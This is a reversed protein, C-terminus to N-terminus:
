PKIIMIIKIIVGVLLVILYIGFIESIPLNGFLVNFSGLYGRITPIAQGFSQGSVSASAVNFKGSFGFLWSSVFDIFPKTSSVLGNIYVSDTACNGNETCFAIWDTSTDIFVPPSFSLCNGNESPFQPLQWYCDRNECDTKNDCFKCAYDSGCNPESYLLNRINDIIVRVCNDNTGGYCNVGSDPELGINKIPVPYDCGELWTTWENNELKQRCRRLDDYQWYITYWKGNEIFGLDNNGLRTIVSAKYSTSSYFPSITFSEESQGAGSQLFIRFTNGSDIQPDFVYFDFEVFGSTSGYISPSFDRNVENWGLPSIMGKEGLSSYNNEV